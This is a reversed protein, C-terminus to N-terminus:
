ESLAKTSETRRDALLTQVPEAMQVALGFRISLQNAITVLRDPSPHQRERTGEWLSPQEAGEDFQLYFTQLPEDWGIVIISIDGASYIHRSM